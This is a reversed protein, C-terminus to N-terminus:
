AAPGFAGGAQHNKVCSPRRHRRLATGLATPRRRACEPAQDSGPKTPNTTHPRGSRATRTEDTTGERLYKNVANRGVLDVPRGFIEALEDELRFLSFGLRAGAELPRM